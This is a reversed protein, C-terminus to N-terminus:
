GFTAWARKRMSLPTGSGILAVSVRTPVTSPNPPM